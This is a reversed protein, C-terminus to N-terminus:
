SAKIRGVVPMKERWELGGKEDHLTGTGAGSEQVESIGMGAAGAEYPFGTSPSLPWWRKGRSGGEGAAWWVVYLAVTCTPRVKGTADAVQAMEAAFGRLVVPCPELGRGSRRSGPAPSPKAGRAQPRGDSSATLKVPRYPNTNWAFRECLAASSALRAPSSANGIQPIRRGLM